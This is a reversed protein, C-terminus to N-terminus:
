TCRGLVRRALRGMIRVLDSRCLCSIMGLGWHPRLFERARRGGYVTSLSYYQENKQDAGSILSWRLSALYEMSFVVLCRPGRYHCRDDTGPLSETNFSHVAHIPAYREKVSRFCAARPSRYQDPLPSRMRNHHSERM